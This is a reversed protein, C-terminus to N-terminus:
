QTGAKRVPVPRAWDDGPPLWGQRRLVNKCGAVFGVVADRIRERVTRAYQTRSRYGDFLGANPSRYRADWPKRRTVFHAIGPRQDAPLLNLNGSQFCAFNWRGDLPHWRGDCTVNLADQDALRTEPHEALYEFARESINERRWAELDMLLVGANFYTGVRPVDEWGPEGRKLIDDMVDRVAGVVAGNLHAGWVPALDDLVLLDADLYLVRKPSPPLVRPILLRAYTARSIHPLTAFEAYAGLDVTVWYIRVAGSPLSRQVRDQMAISVGDSLVYVTLPWHATNSEALSRLATALPMAYGEDCAFVVPCANSSSPNQM